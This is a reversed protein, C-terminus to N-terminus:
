GGPFQVPVFERSSVPGPRTEPHSQPLEDRDPKLWGTSALTSKATVTFREAPSRQLLLSAQDRLQGPEGAAVALVLLIAGPCRAALRWQGAPRTFRATMARSCVTTVTTM